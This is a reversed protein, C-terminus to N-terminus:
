GPDPEFESCLIALDTPQLQEFASFDTFDAKNNNLEQDQGKDLFGASCKLGTKPSRDSFVLNGGTKGGRKLVNDVVKSVAEKAASVSEKAAIAARSAKDLVVQVLNNAMHRAPIPSRFDIGFREAQDKACAYALIALNTLNVRYNVASRDCAFRGNERKQGGRRTLLGLEELTSLNTYTTSRRASNAGAYLRQGFGHYYWTNPDRNDPKSVDLLRSLTKSVSNPLLPEVVRVLAEIESRFWNSQALSVIKSSEAYAAGSFTSASRAKKPLSRTLSPM